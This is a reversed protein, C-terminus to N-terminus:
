SAACSKKEMCPTVFFTGAKSDFEHETFNWDLKSPLLEGAHKNCEDM